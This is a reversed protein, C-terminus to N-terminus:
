LHHRSLPSYTHICLTHTCHGAIAINIQIGLEKAKAEAADAAIKAGALTLTTVSRVLSGSAASM